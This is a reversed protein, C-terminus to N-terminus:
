VADRLAKMTDSFNLTNEYIARGTIAGCIGDQVYQSLAMVDEHRAIGGSAIVPIRVSQALRHTEEINPGNLMGDRAIDTYIIASVGDNEFKKALEVAM